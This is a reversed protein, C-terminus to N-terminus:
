KFRWITVCTNTQFDGAGCYLTLNTIAVSSRWAGVNNQIYLNGTTNAVKQVQECSFTKQWNTEAPHYLWLRLTSAMGAPATDATIGGLEWRNTGFQEGSTSSGASTYIFQNDYILNTDGNARGLIAVGGASTTGRGTLEILILRSNAPLSTLDISSVTNTGTSSVLTEVALNTLSAGNGVHGGSFTGSLTVGTQNNTLGLQDGDQLGAPMTTWDVENSGILSGLLSVNGSLRADPLTGSSIVSANLNTLGSGLGSFTGGLTLGTQNNTVAPIQLATNPMNTLGAANGTHQGHFAGNTFTITGGLVKVTTNSTATDFIVVTPSLQYNTVVAATSSATLVMIPLVMASFIQLFHKKM